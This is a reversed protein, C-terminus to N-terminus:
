WIIAPRLLVFYYILHQVLCLVPSVLKLIHRGSPDDGLIRIAADFMLLQWIVDINRKFSRIISM